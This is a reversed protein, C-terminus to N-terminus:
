LGDLLKGIHEGKLLYYGGIKERETHGYILYGTRLLFGTVIFIIIGNGRCRLGTISLSQM